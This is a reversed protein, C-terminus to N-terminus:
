DDFHQPDSTGLWSFGHTRFIKVVVNSKSRYVVQHPGKRKAWTKNPVIGERSHYPNWWTNIDIAKGSAHPSKVGPRGVVSRCNFGSTNGARMSKYDNAGRLKKSYGFKDVAYMRFIPLQKAHMDAFVKGARKASDKHVIIEGRHRFGDFGWYNVKVVRLKTKSLCGSRWSRGKMKKARASSIKGIKVDAGPTTARPQASTKLSPAPSLKWVRGGPVNKVLQSASTAQDTAETAPGVVRWYYSARPRVDAKGGGEQVTVHSHTKWSGGSKKYQLIATGTVTRPTPEATHWAVQMTAAKEDVVTKPASLVIEASVKRGTVTAKASAVQGDAASYSAAVANSGPKVTFTFSFSGDAAPHVTRTEPATVSVDGPPADVTTVRGTVTATTGVPAEAPVALELVPAAAAPAPTTAEDASAPSLWGVSMVIPIILLLPYSRRM